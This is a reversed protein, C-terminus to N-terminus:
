PELSATGAARLTGTIAPAPMWAAIRLTAEAHGGGQIM